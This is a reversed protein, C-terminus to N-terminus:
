LIRAPVKVDAFLIENIHDVLVFVGQVLDQTDVLDFSHPAGQFFSLVRRWFAAILFQLISLLAKAAVM